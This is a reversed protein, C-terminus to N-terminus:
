SIKENKDKVSLHSANPADCDEITIASSFQFNECARANMNSPKLM